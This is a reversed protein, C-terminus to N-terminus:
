NLSHFGSLMYSFLGVKFYLSMVAAFSPPSAANSFDNSLGTPANAIAAIFLQIM